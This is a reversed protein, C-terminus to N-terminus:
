LSGLVISTFNWEGPFFVLVVMWSKAHKEKDNSRFIQKIMNNFKFYKHM